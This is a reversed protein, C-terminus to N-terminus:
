EAREKSIKYINRGAAVIALVLFILLLWHGTGLWSDLAWGLLAGGAPVGIMEALVRSGQGYGRAPKAANNGATRAEEVARAKAIRSELDDNQRDDAM